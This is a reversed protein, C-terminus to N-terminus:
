DDTDGVGLPREPLTVKIKIDKNKDNKQIGDIELKTKDIHLQMQELKMRREDEEPASALFQKVLGRHERMISSLAKMNSAYKDWAHQYEWQREDGYKGPKDATLVKTEDHQNKVFFLREAWIIKQFLTNINHWLMDLPEMTQVIDLIELFEADQPLFKRFLGHTVAKSNGPPGGKGGKNGVSNKNRPQAGRRRRKDPIDDWKDISKWKRVNSDTVGIKTAIEKLMMTRGSNLWLKLAEKRKPSQERSM